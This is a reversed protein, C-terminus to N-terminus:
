ALSVRTVRPGAKGEATEFEVRQGVIPEGIIRAAKWEKVHLFVDPKGADNAIFGFGRDLNWAKVAGTAM